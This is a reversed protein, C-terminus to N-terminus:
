SSYDIRQKARNLRRLFIPCDTSWSSHAIDLQNEENLKFQRNHNYCNVCKQFDSECENFEHCEACKPCCAPATCDCAKHGYEFCNYCQNVNIDEVVRCRFWGVNVRQLKILKVLLSADVEVLATMPNSKHRENKKLRVVNMDVDQLTSNQKKITDVLKDKSVSEDFGIIKVRPKLANQIDIAYKESLVKKAASMMRLALERSECRISAEGTDKFHVNKVAFSVPDLKQQIDRKTIEASQVEIPKFTVTQEIKTIASTKPAPSNSIVTSKIPNLKVNTTSSSKSGRRKGSRLWGRDDDQDTAVPTCSDQRYMTANSPTTLEIRTNQATPIGIGSRTVDAYSSATSATKCVYTNAVEKGILQKVHSLLSNQFDDFQTKLIANVKSDIDDMSKRMVDVTSAIESCHNKVANLDTQDKRCDFCMYKLGVNQRLAAVAASNLESCKAHLIKHCGGFCYVRDSEIAIKQICVDCLVTTMNHLPM